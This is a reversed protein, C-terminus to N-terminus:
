EPKDPVIRIRADQVLAQILEMKFVAREADTPPLDIEEVSKPHDKQHYMCIYALDQIDPKSIEDAKELVVEDEEKAFFAHISKIFKNYLVQSSLGTLREYSCEGKFTYLFNYNTTAVKNNMSKRQISSSTM